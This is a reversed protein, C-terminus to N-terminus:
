AAESACWVSNDRHWVMVGRVEGDSVVAGKSIVVDMTM